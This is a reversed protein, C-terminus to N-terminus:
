NHSFFTWRYCFNLPTDLLICFHPSSSTLRSLPLVPTPLVMPKVTLTLFPPHPILIITPTPDLSFLKRRFHLYYVVTRRTCLLRRSLRRQEKVITTGKLHLDDQQQSGQPEQGGMESAEALSSLLSGGALAKMESSTSSSDVNVRTNMSVTRSRASSSKNSNTRTQGISSSDLLPPTVLVSGTWGASSSFRSIKSAM